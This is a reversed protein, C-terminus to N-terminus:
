QQQQREYHRQKQKSHRSRKGRGGHLLSPQHELPYYTWINIPISCATAVSASTTTTADASAYNNSSASATCPNFTSPAAAAGSTTTYISAGGITRCRLCPITPVANSRNFTVSISYTRVDQSTNRRFNKHYWQLFYSICSPSTVLPIHLRNLM